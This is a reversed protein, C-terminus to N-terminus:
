RGGARARTALAVAAVGAVALLGVGVAGGRVSVLARPRVAIRRSGTTLRGLVSDVDSGLTLLRGHPGDVAVRVGAATLADAVPNLDSRGRRATGPLEADRLSRLAVWPRDVTVTVTEGDAGTGVTGSASRPGDQLGFRLDARVRLAPDTM